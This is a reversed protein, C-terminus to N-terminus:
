FFARVLEAAKTLATVLGGAATVSEVLSKASSLHELLTGKDPAPKKAEQVAKTLRYEADTAVGEDFVGAQRAQTLERQLKGLEGILEQRNQIMGINIDGAANYQYGVRQGRQDFATSRSRDIVTAHGGGGAQAIHHGTATQTTNRDGTIITSGTVNGGVAVAREGSATVTRILQRFLRASQQPEVARAATGEPLAEGADFDGVDSAGRYLAVPFPGVGKLVTLEPEQTRHLQSVAETIAAYMAEYLAFASVYGNNPVIGTGSLGEVLAQTFISLTGSGIYSKQTPRCATILIRGEGSSLLANTAMEPMSVEGFSPAEEGLGLDPSIAGAHCANFLLLLRTAPIARLKDLLEAASLGTGKLVKGNSVQTDHTTLYYHGDTGYDGHGCYYLVVTDDAHTAQALAELAKVLGDRTATGDHLLTVQAPPYGCLHPDCLVEQVRTADTVSIPINAQPVFTYSGIGIVLAHGQDFAMM